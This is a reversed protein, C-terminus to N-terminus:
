GNLKEVIKNWFCTPSYRSWYKAQAREAISKCEDPREMYYKAKDVLDDPSTFPIYEENPVFFHQMTDHPYHLDLLCAGCAIAEMARGKLHPRTPHSTINITLRSEQLIKAYDHITRSWKDMSGGTYCEVGARELASICMEREPRFREGIFSLRHIRERNPNYFVNSDEASWLPLYRSSDKVGPPAEHRDLTVTLDVIPALTEAAEIDGDTTCDGWLATLMAYPRIERTKLAIAKGLSVEAGGARCIIILDPERYAAYQVAKNIDNDTDIRFIDCSHDGQKLPISLTQYFSNYNDWYDHPVPPGYPLLVVHVSGGSDDELFPLFDM